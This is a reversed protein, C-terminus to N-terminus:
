LSSVFLAHHPFPFGIEGLLGETMRMMPKTGIVLFKADEQELGLRTGFVEKLVDANIRGYLVNEEEVEEERSFIYVMEFREAGYKEELEKIQDKWFVDERTRSAWLVVVKSSDGKELEARAVPLIETIAVGYAVGGFFSGPTRVRSINRMGFAHTTDGINLRHLHGSARGNPYIKVTLDFENQSKRLASMSYSKPKYNPIVMKVVEGMDIRVDEFPQARGSFQHGTPIEFTLTYVPLRDLRDSNCDGESASVLQEKRILKIPVGSMWNTPTIAAMAVTAAKSLLKNIVTM